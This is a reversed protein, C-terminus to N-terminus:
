FIACGCTPKQEEEEEEPFVSGGNPRGYHRASWELIKNKFNFSYSDDASNMIRARLRAAIHHIVRRCAVEDNLGLGVVYVGGGMNKVFQQDFPSLSNYEFESMLRCGPNM